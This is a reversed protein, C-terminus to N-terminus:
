LIALVRFLHGFNMYGVTFASRRSIQCVSVRAMAFVAIFV